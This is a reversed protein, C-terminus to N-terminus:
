VCEAITEVMRIQCNFSIWREVAWPALKNRRVYITWRELREYQDFTRSIQHSDRETVPSCNEYRLMDIPFKGCGTIKALRTM